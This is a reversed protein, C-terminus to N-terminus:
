PRGERAPAMHRLWKLWAMAEATVAQYKRSEMNLLADMFESFDKPASDGFHSNLWSRLDEGVKKQGDGKQQLFAMTQMLGSNMILAPLSKATTTYEPSCDKSKEWADKARKQELPLM